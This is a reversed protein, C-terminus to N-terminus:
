GIRGWSVYLVSGHQVVIIISFCIPKRVDSRRFPQKVSRSLL